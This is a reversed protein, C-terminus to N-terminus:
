LYKLHIESFHQNEGFYQHKCKKTIKYQNTALFHSKPDGQAGGPTWIRGEPRGNRDLLRSKTEGGDDPLTRPADQFRGPAGFAGM